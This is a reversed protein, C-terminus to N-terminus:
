RWEKILSAMLDRSVAKYAETESITPAGNDSQAQCFAVRGTESPPRPNLKADERAEAAKMLETNFDTWRTASTRISTRGM